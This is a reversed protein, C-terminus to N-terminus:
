LTSSFPLPRCAGTISPFDRRRGGAEWEALKVEAWERFRRASPLEGLLGYAAIQARMQREHQDYAPLRALAGRRIVSPTCNVVDRMAENLRPAARFGVANALFVLDLDPAFELADIAWTARASRLEQGFSTGHGAFWRQLTRPSVHTAAALDWITLGVQCSMAELNALAAQFPADQSINRKQATETIM